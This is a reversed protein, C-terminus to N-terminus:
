HGRAALLLAFAILPYQVLIFALAAANARKSRVSIAAGFSLYFLIATSLDNLNDVPNHGLALQVAQAAVNCAMVGGLVFRKHAFYYVDYDSWDDPDDPFTLRAVLYYLSTIILACFLTFLFPTVQQRVNWALVWFSTIDFAVIAGLMPTLWGVHVKRRSQLAKGFGGLVEALALGLLISFLSFVFEFNSM